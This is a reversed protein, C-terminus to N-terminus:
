KHKNKIYKEPLDFQFYGVEYCKGYGHMVTKGDIFMTSSYKVGLKYLIIALLRRM